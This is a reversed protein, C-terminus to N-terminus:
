RLNAQPLPSPAPSSPPGDLQMKPNNIPNKKRPDMSKPVSRGGDTAMARADAGERRVAATRSPRAVLDASERALRRLPRAMRPAVAAATSGVM